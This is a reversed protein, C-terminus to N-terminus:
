ELCEIPADAPREDPAVSRKRREGSYISANNCDLTIANKKPEAIALRHPQRGSIRWQRKGSLHLDFGPHNAALDHVEIHHCPAASKTMAQACAVDVPRKRDRRRHITHGRDDSISASDHPIILDFNLKPPVIRNQEIGCVSRDRKTGFLGAPNKQDLDFGLEVDYLHTYVRVDTAAQEHTLKQVRLRQM